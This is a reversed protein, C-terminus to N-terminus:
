QASGGLYRAIVRAAIPAAVSGGHLPGWRHSFEMLEANVTHLSAEDERIKEQLYEVKEIFSLHKISEPFSLEPMQKKNLLNRIDESINKTAAILGVLNGTESPVTLLECSADALCDLCEKLVTASKEDTLSIGIYDLDPTLQMKDLMSSITALFSKYSGFESLERQIGDKERYLSECLNLHSDITRSVTEIIPRPTLYSERINEFPLCAFLRSLKAELDELFIKEFLTKEDPLM